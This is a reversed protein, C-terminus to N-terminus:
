NSIDDPVDRGPFPFKHRRKITTLLFGDTINVVEIFLRCGFLGVVVRPLSDFLHFLDVSREAVLKRLCRSSVEFREFRKPLHDVRASHEVILLVSALDSDPCGLM